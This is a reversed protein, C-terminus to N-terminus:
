TFGELTGQKIEMNILHEVKTLQEGQDKQVFTFAKGQAGMRATRGVRHVYVEPDDPIDFNIIHSIHAVDIGRSALDTAVLVEFKGGRFSKMVRDRKNQALNGHIERCEIGDISLKKALKQAGHKTKCFIIALEPNEKELLM